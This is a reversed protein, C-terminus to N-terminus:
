LTSREYATSYGCGVGVFCQNCGRRYGKQELIVCENHWMMKGIGISTNVPHLVSGRGNGSRAMSKGANNVSEIKMHWGRATLACIKADNRASYTIIGIPFSAAKV